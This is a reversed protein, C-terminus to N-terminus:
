SRWRDRLALFSGSLCRLTSDFPEHKSFLPSHGNPHRIDQWSDVIHPVAASARGGFLFFAAICQRTPIIHGPPLHRDGRIRCRLGKFGSMLSPILCRRYLSSREQLMQTPSMESPQMHAIQPNQQFKANSEETKVVANEADEFEKM